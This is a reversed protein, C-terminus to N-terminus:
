NRLTGIVYHYRLLASASLPWFIAPILSFALQVSRALGIMARELAWRFVVPV